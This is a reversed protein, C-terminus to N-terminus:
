MVCLKYKEYQIEGFTRSEEVWIRKFALKQISFMYKELRPPLVSPNFLWSFIKVLNTHDSYMFCPHFIVLIENEDTVKFMLFYTQGKFVYFIQVTSVSLSTGKHPM